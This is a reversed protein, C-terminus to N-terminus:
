SKSSFKNGQMFVSHRKKNEDTHKRGYFSNRDGTRTKAFDSIKKKMQVSRGKIWGQSLFEDLNIIMIRQEKIDNHVWCYKGKSEIRAKSIAKCVHDPRTKGLLPHVDYVISGNINQNLWNDNSLVKLRRLVKEEWLIAENSTKFIKRIEPEFSEKGYLRILNKVKKSSSFYTVWLETPNCSKAWRVGYYHKDTIKHYLHYTYPIM